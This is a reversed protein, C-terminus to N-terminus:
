QETAALLEAHSIHEYFKRLDLFLTGSVLGRTERAFAAMASHVWASKDCATSTSMGWFFPPAWSGKGRRADPM